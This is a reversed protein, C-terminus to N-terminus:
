ESAPDSEYTASTIVEDNYTYKVTLSISEISKENKRVEDLVTNAVKKFTDAQNELGSEFLQKAIDSKIYEETIGEMGSLEFTYIMENGSFEVSLGTMGSSAVTEEVKARDDPHDNMYTELTAKKSGCSTFCMVSIVTIIM